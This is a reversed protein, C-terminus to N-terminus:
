RYSYLDGIPGLFPKGLCVFWVVILGAGASRLMSKQGGGGGNCM